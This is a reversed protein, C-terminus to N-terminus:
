LLKIEEGNKMFPRARGSLVLEIFDSIDKIPEDTAIGGFRDRNGGIHNDTGAFPILKYNKCYQEALSNEFDNRCANYIEVGHVLRPCLSIFEINKWARFPHAHILLAGDDRMIRLLEDKPMKDMDKHALCWDKDIGYVLFDTGSHNMTMEFGPFVSIGIEEGLRIAEEIGAFFREIREEYPLNVIAKNVNGDIFHETTFVGAYGASKYFELSERMSAKACASMPATHLHTEYIYMNEETVSTQSFANEIIPAGFIEIERGYKRRVRM